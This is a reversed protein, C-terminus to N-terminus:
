VSLSKIRSQKNNAFCKKTFNPSNTVQDYFDVEVARQKILSERVSPIQVNTCSETKFLSLIFGEKKGSTTTPVHEIYFSNNFIECIDGLFVKVPTGKLINQLVSVKNFMLRLCLHKGSRKYFMQFRSSRIKKIGLLVPHGLVASWGLMVVSWRGVSWDIVSWQGTLFKHFLFIIFEYKVSVVVKFMSYKFDHEVDHVWM